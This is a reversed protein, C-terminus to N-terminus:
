EEYVSQLAFNKYKKCRILVIPEPRNIIML